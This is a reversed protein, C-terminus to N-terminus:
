GFYRLGLRLSAPPSGSVHSPSRDHARHAPPSVSESRNAELPRERTEPLSLLPQHPLDRLARANRWIRSSALM